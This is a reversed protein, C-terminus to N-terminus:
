NRTQFGGLNANVLFFPKSMRRFKLSRGLQISVCYYGPLARQRPAGYLGAWSYSGTSSDINEAITGLYKTGNSEKVYQHLDISIKGSINETTWTIPKPTSGVTWKEGGMPSTIKINQPPGFAFEGSDGAVGDILTRIRIYYKGPAPVPNSFFCDFSGDNETKDTLVQVLGSSNRLRITVYNDMNGTKIWQITYKEPAVWYDGTRPSYVNINQGALMAALTGCFIFLWITKKM